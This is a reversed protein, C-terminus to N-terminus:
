SGLERSRRAAAHVADAIAIDAGREQMLTVAAHTTGNPSTVKRRLEQASDASELLMKAAGVATQVSLTRAEAPTLGLAEGARIM